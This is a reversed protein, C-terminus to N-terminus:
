FTSFTSGISKHKVITSCRSVVRRIASLYIFAFDRTPRNTAFTYREKTERESIRRGICAERIHRLFIHYNPMAFPSSISGIISSVMKGYPSHRLHSEISIEKSAMRARVVTRAIRDHRSKAVIAM